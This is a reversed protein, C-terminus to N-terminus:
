PPAFLAIAGARGAGKGSVGWPWDWAAVNLADMAHNQRMRGTTPVTKLHLRVEM